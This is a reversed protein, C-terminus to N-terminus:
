EGNYDIANASDIARELECYFDDLASVESELEDIQAQMAQGKEGEQWKDSKDDFAEQKKEQAEEVSEKLAEINCRLDQVADVIKSLKKKQATTM